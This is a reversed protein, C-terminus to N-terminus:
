VFTDTWAMQGVFYASAAYSLSFVALAWVAPDAGRLRYVLYAILVIQVFAFICAPVLTAHASLHGHFLAAIGVYCESAIFPILFLWLTRRREIIGMVVGVLLCVLGIFPILALLEGGFLSAAAAVYQPILM